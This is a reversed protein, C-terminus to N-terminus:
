NEQENDSDESSYEGIDIDIVDEKILSGNLQRFIIQPNNSQKENLLTEVIFKSSKKRLNKMRSREESEPEVPPLNQQNRAIQLNSGEM